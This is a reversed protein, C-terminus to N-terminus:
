QKKRRKVYIATAATAAIITSALGIYPALLDLKDVPVWFGGVATIKYQMGLSDGETSAISGGSWGTFRATGTPTFELSFAPQSWVCLYPDALPNYSKYWASPWTGVKEIENNYPDHGNYGWEFAVDYLIGTQDEVTISLNGGFPGSGATWRVYTIVTRNIDVYFRGSPDFWVYVSANGSNIIEWFSNQQWSAANQIGPGGRVNGGAVGVTVVGRVTSSSGPPSSISAVIGTDAFGSVPGIVRWIPTSGPGGWAYVDAYAQLNSAQAPKVEVVSFWSISVVLLMVVSLTKKKM